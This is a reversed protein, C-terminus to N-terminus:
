YDLVSGLYFSIGPQLMTLGNNFGGPRSRFDLHERYNRDFLNEVGGILSFRERVQWFGRLDFTTFGGTPREGLSTAVRSQDDVIRASFEITWPREDQRNHYRIGVRSELPAIGPLAEQAGGMIGSFFGRSVGPVRQAPAGQVAELTAFNGNRTRDTGRVYQLTAFPTLQETADYECLFDAGGLTAM